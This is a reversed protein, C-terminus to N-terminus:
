QGSIGRFGEVLRVRGDPALEVRAYGPMPIGRWFEYPDELALCRALYATIVRGHSVVAAPAPGGAVIRLAAEFRAAAAVATESGRVGADPHELIRRAAENFADANDIWEDWRQEEFGEVLRVPLGLADGLILATAKAKPEVSSYLALIGWGQAAEALRRAEEIGRPSLQWAQAPRAPEIQPSAHRILYLASM